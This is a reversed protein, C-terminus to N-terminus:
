ADSSRVPFFSSVAAAAVVHLHVRDDRHPSRGFAQEATARLREPLSAVLVLRFRNFGRRNREAVGRQLTVGVEDIRWPARDTDILYILLRGGIEIKAAQGSDAAQSVISLFVEDPCACGLADRVFREIPPCETMSM